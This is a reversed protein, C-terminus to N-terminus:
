KARTIIPTNECITNSVLDHKLLISFGSFKFHVNTTFTETPNKTIKPEKLCKSKSNAM